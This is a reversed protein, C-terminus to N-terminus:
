LKAVSYGLLDAAELLALSAQEGTFTQHSVVVQGSENLTVFTKRNNAVSRAQSLEQRLRTIETALSQVKQQHNPM